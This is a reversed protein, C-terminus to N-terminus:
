EVEGGEVAEGVQGIDEQLTRAEVHGVIDLVGGAESGGLQGLHVAM